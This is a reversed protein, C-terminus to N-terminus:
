GANYLDGCDAAEDKVEKMIEDNYSMEGSLAFALAIVIAILFNIVLRDRKREDSVQKKSAMM